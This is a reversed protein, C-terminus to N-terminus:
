RAQRAEGVGQRELDVIEPGALQEALPVEGEAVANFHAETEPEVSLRHWRDVEIEDIVGPELDFLIEPQPDHRHGAQHPEQREAARAVHLRVDAGAERSQAEAVALNAVEDVAVGEVNELIPVHGAAGGHARQQEAADAKWDAAVNVAEGDFPPILIADSV